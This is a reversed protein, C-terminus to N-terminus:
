NDYLNGINEPTIIKPKESEIKIEIEDNWREANLWTSPYPIFQGNSKKWNETKKQKELIELIVNLPPHKKTKWKQEAERKNVKRPYAKWFIDFSDKEANINDKSIKVKSPLCFETIVGSNSVLSEETLTPIDPLGERAPNLYPQKELFDPYNLYIEGNIQYRIILGKDSLEDLASAIVKVSHGLRTFVLNNVMVPDAYFNGNVDLHPLMWTYLLRVTDNSLGAMKKSKSIRNQLMRGKAM